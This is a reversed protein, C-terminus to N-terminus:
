FKTAVKIHSFDLFIDQGSIASRHADAGWRLRLHCCILSRYQVQWGDGSRSDVLPGRRKTIFLILLRNNYIMVSFVDGGRLLLLLIISDYYYLLSSNTTTQVQFNTSM